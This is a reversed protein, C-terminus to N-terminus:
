VKQRLWRKLFVFFVFILNAASCLVVFFCVGVPEALVRGDRSVTRSLPRTVTGGVEQQSCSVSSIAVRIYFDPSKFLKELNFVVFGFLVFGDDSTPQVSAHSPGSPCFMFSVDTVAFLGAHTVFM